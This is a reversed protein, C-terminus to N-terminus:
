RRSFSPYMLSSQTLEMAQGILMDCDLRSEAAEIQLLKPKTKPHKPTFVTCCDEYPLISTEFTGIKRARSVIEEKDMGILPRFVPLGCVAETCAIAYMTQSAVQGVSEGTILAGCDSDKAIRQAIRMMFRRMIVTFLDEPCKELIQKQIETFHVTYLNIFGAYDTLKRCLEVVKDLAREGTYPPSYFHIADLQLGRKAMMYGAVPSDIGGSLLLAARGSSGVPLGGAGPTTGAHIYAAFDRIEVTVVIDPDHVDVKLYPFSELLKEGLQAAIEPSKLKFGKDSRKAEVKFTSVESLKKELYIPAIDLIKEFDKEVECARCIAAVGFMKLLAEFAAEMDAKEDVPECYITSQAKYFKFHGAPAVRRKANKILLDEFAGRNLGKLAVEGNKLLFLEKM